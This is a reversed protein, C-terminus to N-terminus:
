DKAFWIRNFPNRSPDWFKEKFNVIMDDKVLIGEKKLLKEM